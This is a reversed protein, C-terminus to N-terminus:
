FSYYKAHTTSPKWLTDALDRGLKFDRYYICAKLGHEDELKERLTTHVWPREEGNTSYSIFVDYKYSNNVGPLGEPDHKKQWSGRAAHLLYRIRWRRKYLFVAMAITAFFGLATLTSSLIETLNICKFYLIETDIDWLSIDQNTVSHRCRTFEKRAFNVGTSQLWLIFDLNQCTCELPNLSVDLTINNDVLVDLASTVQPNLYLLSNGSLNLLTLNHLGALDVFDSISNKSLNLVELNQLSDFIASPVTKLGCEQLDLTKLLKLQLFDHKEPGELSIQNGGLLLVELRQSDQFITMDKTLRIGDNQFNFYRLQKLGRLGFTDTITNELWSNSLEFHKLTNSPNLCVLLEHRVASVFLNRVVLTELQPPITINLGMNCGPLSSLGVIQDDGSREECEVQIFNKCLCRIVLCVVNVGSGYDCESMLDRIMSNNYSTYILGLDRRDLRTSRKRDPFLFKYERIKPHMLLDIVACELAFPKYDGQYLTLLESGGVRFVELKPLYDKLGTQVEIAANDLLELHNLPLNTVYRYVDDKMLIPVTTRRIDVRQTGTMNLTTLPPQYLQIHQLVSKMLAPTLQTYSLDLTTLQSLNLLTAPNFDDLVLNIALHHLNTLNAFINELTITSTAAESFATQYAVYKKRGQLKLTELNYLNSFDVAREDFNRWVDCVLEKTLSPIRSIESFDRPTTLTCRATHFGNRTSFVCTAGTDPAAAVFVTCLFYVAKSAAMRAKRYM